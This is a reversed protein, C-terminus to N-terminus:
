ITVKRVLCRMNREQQEKSTPEFGELKLRLHCLFTLEQKISHRSGARWKDFAAEGRLPTSLIDRLSTIRQCILEEATM